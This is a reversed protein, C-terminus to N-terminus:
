NLYATMKKAECSHVHPSRKNCDFDFIKINAIHLPKFVENLPV